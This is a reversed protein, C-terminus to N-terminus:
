GFVYVHCRRLPTAMTLTMLAVPVGVRSATPWVEFSFHHFFCRPTVYSLTGTVVEIVPVGARFVGYPMTGILGVIRMGRWVLGFFALVTPLLALAILNDCV